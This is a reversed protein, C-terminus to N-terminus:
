NLNPDLIFGTFFLKNIEFNPVFAYNIKYADQAKTITIDQYSIILNDDTSTATKKKLYQKLWTEVISPSLTSVNPGSTQNGLLQQVANIEIEKNLQAAIRKLSILHSTGDANVVFQNRQITNIGAVVIFAGIDGNYGTALVGADLAQEKESEKMNHIEGAFGLAKFTIPTQPELGATRGLVHAAKYVADKAKLGTGTQQSNVFCGGHVLTVRDSNFFEAGAISTTIFENRDNGGGIVLFKEFRAEAALHALIKGNDISQADAGGDTSLVFTYDTQKVSDLVDDVRATNYIQTGGSFLQNGGTSTLDASDVVGANNISSSTLEINNNFDFDVSMWDIVEQVTDFEPSTAILEPATDEESTANYPHNEEDLGTFAGRWFQLIFKNPNTTGADMTMALGRTLITGDIGGSMTANGLTATATGTVNAVFTDGNSATGLNEPAYVRIQSGSILEASYGHANGNYTNSNIDEILLIAAQALTESGTSTYTGISVSNAVLEVSDGVGGVSTIEATESARTEDGEVGNGVLGEHRARMNLTGGETGGGTWSISLKSAVTDLARVYYLNSIGLSGPGNPRFLPLAKDYLEGGRIFSRFDDLNDFQYISDKEQNIEGNIGSGGGFVSDGSKDIILVNGYSFDLTPNNVGSKIQTYAGPLKVLRGNFNFETAM